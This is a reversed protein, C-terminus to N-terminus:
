IGLMFNWPFDNYKCWSEVPFLTGTQVGMERPISTANWPFGRIKIPESTPDGGAGAGVSHYFLSKGLFALLMGRYGPHQSSGGM